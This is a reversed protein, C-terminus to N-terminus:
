NKFATKQKSIGCVYRAITVKLCFLFLKFTFLFDERLVRYTSGSLLTSQQPDIALSTVTDLHAVM